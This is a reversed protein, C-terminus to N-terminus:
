SETGAPTFAVQDPWRTFSVDLIGMEYDKQQAIASKMCSIKYDMNGTDGLRVQYQQGYWLQLDDIATVDVSSAEGIIQNLELSALVVMAANLRDQGTVVKVERPPETEAPPATEGEPLSAPPDAPAETPEETEGPVVVATEVAKAAAGVAPASLEVGLIQTYKSATGADVQELVNGGSTMLWWTGDESRVAYAVDVEEIYINVTDPLKIGIRASEVYPLSAIIKSSVRTRNMTLLNEGGEIGAAEQVTWASYASNGYVVVAEVKFFVSLGMVVALVVALVVVTQLLLRNVNLPKPPTYEVAPRAAQKKKQIERERARKASRRRQASRKAAQPDRRTEGPKFVQEPADTKVAQAHEPRRRPAAQEPARTRQRPQAPKRNEPRPATRTRAERQAAPETRTEPRSGANSRPERRHEAASRSGNATRRSRDASSRSRTQRSRSGSPAPRKQGGSPKKEKTDM